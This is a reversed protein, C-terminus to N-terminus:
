QFQYKNFVASWAQLRCVATHCVANPHVLLTQGARGVRAYCLSWLEWVDAGEPHLHLMPLSDPVRTMRSMANNHQDARLM